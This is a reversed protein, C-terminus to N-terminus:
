APPAAAKQIGPLCGDRSNKGARGFGGDMALLETATREDARAVGNLADRLRAAEGEAVISRFSRWPRFAAVNSLEVEKDRWAVEGKADQKPRERFRASGGAACL